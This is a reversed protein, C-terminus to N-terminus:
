ERLTGNGRRSDKMKKRKEEIVGQSKNGYNYNGRPPNGIIILMLLQEHGEGSGLDEMM